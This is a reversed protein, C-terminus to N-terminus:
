DSHHCIFPHAICLTQCCIVFQDYFIVCFTRRPDAHVGPTSILTLFGLFNNLRALLPTQSTTDISSASRDVAHRQSWLKITLTVKMVDTSIRGEDNIALRNVDKQRTTIASQRCAFPGSHDSAIVADGDKTFRSFVNRLQWFNDHSHENERQLM